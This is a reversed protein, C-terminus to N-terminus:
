HKNSNINVTTILLFIKSQVFFRMTGIQRLVTQVTRVRTLQNEHCDNFNKAGSTM